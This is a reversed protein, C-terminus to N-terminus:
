SEADRDFINELMEREAGLWDELDKGHERNRALWRFYAMEELAKRRQEAAATEPRTAPRAKTKAM